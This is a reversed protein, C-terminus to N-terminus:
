SEPDPRTTPLNGPKLGTFGEPMPEHLHPGNFAAIFRELKGEEKLKLFQVLVAEAPSLVAKAERVRHVIRSKAKAVRKKQRASYSMNPLAKTSRGSSSAM